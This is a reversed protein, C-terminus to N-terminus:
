SFLDIKFLLSQLMWSPSFVNLKINTSQIKLQSTKHKTLFCKNKKRKRIGESQTFTKEADLDNALLSAEVCVDEFSEDSRLKRLFDLTKDLNQVAESVAFEAGQLSKSVLNIQYLIKYWFVTLCCFSMTKMKKALSEAICRAEVDFSQDESMEFLADYIEGSTYRFPRIADIRSEWRTDCLPKVTLNKGLYKKFIAWRRTSASFFNYIAQILTFYEAGQKSSKAADNVVLNLTHAYCPVFFARSNLNLLKKQVGAHKGKMNAGNDYGQGRMNEIPIGHKELEEVIHNALTESDTKEVTLFEFFHERIEVNGNDSINVFRFVISMQEVKSVDQTCDVIITYYKAAHLLSLIKSQIEESLLQILENQINKGMYHAYTEKNITRRVHEALVQDFQSLLEVLKLFNGNEKEFLKDSSGRFALNQEGLFTIIAILRQLVEQWHRTVAQIIAQNESDITKNLNLRNCTELWDVCAHVHAPSTEHAKLAEYLHKWDNFGSITFSIRAKSFLKCCFCFVSDNKQSYVLWTRHVEEGNKMKRMVCAPMFRRNADNTPYQFQEKNDFSPNVPGQSILTM